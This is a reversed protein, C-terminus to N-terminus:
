VSEDASGGQGNAGVARAGTLLVDLPALERLPEFVPADDYAFMFASGSLAMLSPYDVSFGIASLCSHLAHLAQGGAEYDLGYPPVNPVVRYGM